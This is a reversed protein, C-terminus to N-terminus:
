NWPPYVDLGLYTPVLFSNSTPTLTPWRDDEGWQFFDSRDDLKPSRCVIWTFTYTKSFEATWGMGLEKQVTNKPVENKKGIWYNRRNKLCQKINTPLRTGWCTERRNQKPQACWLRCTSWAGYGLGLQLTQIWIQTTAVWINKLKWGSFQPLNGHQRAYKKLHTSVM